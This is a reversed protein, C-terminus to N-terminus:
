DECGAGKELQEAVQAASPADLFMRLTVDVALASKIRNVLRTALLSHGGLDFFDDDPGVSPLGLVEAFLACITEERPTGVTRPAAPPVFPDPLAGRDLKGNATVPLGDLVIVEAPVMYEPLTRALLRRLERGDLELRDGSLGATPVAYGVLSRDGRHDERIVVAAQAVDPCAALASEVDGPEVRFGRIKVQEDLRGLFELTGDARWRALDGTRYMRAGPPGYPDATFREASLAPRHLYGRALGAGALYLEGAVGPPILQLAADLVYVRTNDLPRGLPIPQPVEGPRRWSGQTVCLTAETPGYLTRVSTRPCAELVRRVAEPPVVDGGTLVERTRAFTDALDEAMIRFLGATLHIRTVGHERVLRGLDAAELRGPPAVVVRAGRLLAVWIEYASIDFAHPAHMLVRDDAGVEWRSDAVLEALGRHSVAVGKPTGTSGSTYMVYALADPLATDCAGGDAEDAPPSLEEATVTLVHVGRAAQEGALEHGALAADTVLVPARAEDLVVRMREAPTGTHLPVYTGGARLVALLVAVLEPSREMLVAVPTEAKVGADALRRALASSRADLEACTWRTDGSEVAVETPARLTRAAFLAPVTAPRGTAPALAGNWEGLMREREQPFLIEVQRLRRDPDEALITLLRRFRKVLSEATSRDFLEAAYVVSGTLGGCTGGQAPGERVDFWLDFRVPSLDTADIDPPPSGLLTLVVQFLPLGDASRPLDCEETVRPFPIDLHTRATRETRGVRQILQRLTLADSVDARIVYPGAFLGLVDDPAADHPRGSSAALIPIDAGAGSRALLAALAAHLLTRLTAGCQDALASLRQHLDPDLSIPVSDGREAATAPRGRDHPLQIRRPVGALQSKWYSLQRPLDGTPEDPKRQVQEPVSGAPAPQTVTISARPASESM